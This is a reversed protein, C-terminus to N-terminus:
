RMGLRLAFRRVVERLEFVPELRPGLWGCGVALAAGGLVDAVYHYHLYVTSFIIGTVIPVFLAFVAPSLQRAFYLCLLAIATHGSPFADTLTYEAHYLFLRVADSVLGGGIVVAEESRPVRPGLTPFMFYGIYSMYFTLALTFVVHRFGDDAGRRYLIAGLLVPALYYSLYAVYALDTLWAPRGFANRWAAAVSGFLSADIQAFVPDWQGPSACHIVPGLIDFLVPIVLVASFDHVVRWGPRRGSLFSALLVVILLSLLLGLLWLSDEGLQPRFRAVVVALLLIAALSLADVANLRDGNQVPVV